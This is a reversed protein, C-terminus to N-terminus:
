GDSSEAKARITNRESDGHCAGTRYQVRLKGHISAANSLPLSSDEAPALIFSVIDVINYTDSDDFIANSDDM